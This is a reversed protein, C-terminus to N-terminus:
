TTTDLHVYSDNGVSIARFRRHVVSLRLLFGARREQRLLSSFNETTFSARSLRRSDSPPQFADYALADPACFELCIQCVLQDQTRRVEHFTLHHFTITEPEFIRSLLRPMLLRFELKKDASRPRGITKRVNVKLKTRLESYASPAKGRFGGDPQAPFRFTAHLRTRRGVGNHSRSGVM